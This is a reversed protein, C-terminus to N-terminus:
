PNVSTRVYMRESKRLFGRMLNKQNKEHVQSEMVTFLHCNPKKASFEFNARKQGFITWFKSNKALVAWFWHKKSMNEFHRMLKKQNKEHLRPKIFTFFHRNRKKASFEFNARKQDFRGFNPWFLGFDTNKAWKKLTVCWIKRIKRM